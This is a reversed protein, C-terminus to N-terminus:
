LPDYRLVRGTIAKKCGRPHYALPLQAGDSKSSLLPMRLKLSYVTHEENNVKRKRGM